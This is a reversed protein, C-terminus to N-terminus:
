RRRAANIREVPSLKSYDVKQYTAGASGNQAGSGGANSAAFFYPYEEKLVEFAKEPKRDSVYGDSEKFVLQGADNLDFRGEARLLKIFADLRDPLVGNPGKVAMDRVPTWISFERIQAKLTTIEEDREKLQSEYRQKVREVNVGPKGKADAKGNEEGQKEEGKNNLSDLLADLADDDLDKFSEFRKAAKEAKSRSEREKDLAGKLRQVEQSTELKVFFKGDQEVAADRLFEPVADQTDFIQEIPM